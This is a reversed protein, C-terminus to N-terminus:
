AAFKSFLICKHLAPRMNHCLRMGRPLIVDDLFACVLPILSMLESAFCRMRDEAVRAPALIEPDLKASAKPQNFAGVFRKLQDHTIGIDILSQILRATHTGAVGNSFLTHMPDRLCHDVPPLFSRIHTDLLVGHPSFNVGLVQQLRDFDAAPMGAEKHTKLLDAM